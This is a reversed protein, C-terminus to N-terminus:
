AAVASFAQIIASYDQRDLASSVGGAVMSYHRKSNDPLRRDSSCIPAALRLGSSPVQSDAIPNQTKSCHMHSHMEIYGPMMSGSVTIEDVDEGASIQLLDQTTVQTIRGDEAVLAANHVPDAGTGDILRDAKLVLKM